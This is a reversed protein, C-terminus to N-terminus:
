SLLIGAITALFSTVDAINFMHNTTVMITAIINFILLLIIFTCLWIAGTVWWKSIKVKAIAAAIAVSLGMVAMECSMKVSNSKNAQYEFTLLVVLFLQLWKDKVILILKGIVKNTM